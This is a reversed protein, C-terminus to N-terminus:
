GEDFYKNILGRLTNKLTYDDANSIQLYLNKAITVFVDLMHPDFDRGRKEEVLRVAKNFSFPEKYPRKSTLADFVDAIQFIRANVPIDEGKLGKMYGGGDYKEHHNLVVDMADKLWEYNGIIDAGYQVHNKMIKYEAGTLKKPKLLINDSIGIKGVDHLFAGKMLSRIGEKTLGVAEAINIAYITVRYNHENTDSDRKAIANGLVELMGINAEFLEKSLTELELKKEKLDEIVSELQQERSEVRVIMMGFAEALEAVEEPYKGTKTLEYIGGAEQYNGMSAQDALKTLQRFLNEIHKFSM